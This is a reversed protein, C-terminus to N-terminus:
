IPEVLFRGFSGSKAPRFGGLGVYVGAKTAFDTIEEPTVIEDIYNVDVNFQWDTFKPRYCMVRARSIVVTRRDLYKPSADWLEDPTLNEGYDFPIYEGFIIVGKRIKDGSKSLKAGEELAKKFNISPMMVKNEELYLSNLYQSKAIAINIEDTKKRNATLKKHEITEPALPDALKDCSMLLPSQGTIRLKCIQM